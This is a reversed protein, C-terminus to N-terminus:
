PGRGDSEGARPRHRVNISANFADGAEELQDSSSTRRLYQRVDEMLRALNNRLVLSSAQEAAELESRVRLKWQNIIAAEHIQLYNAALEAAKM